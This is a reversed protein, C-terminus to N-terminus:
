ESAASLRRRGVLGPLILSWLAEFADDIGPEAWSAAFAPHHFRSTADLVAQAAAQPDAVSFEHREIGDAIIAAIQSILKEVHSIVVERADAALTMYTAFLEPDDLAKARKVKMLAKCWRYLRQPAPADEAVISELPRSVRELWRETVADRLAAKSPFHRYVSGHSVGLARAVDVVNAKSPGFRRLVDEAAELIRDPTLAAENM